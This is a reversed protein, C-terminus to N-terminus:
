ESPPAPRTVLFISVGTLIVIQIILGTQPVDYLLSLGVSAAMFILAVVKFRTAIAGHARWQHVPPGLHTHDLLWALLRQSGRSFCFAALLLFPTTPLLPLLIGTVGLAVFIWGITLWGYRVM